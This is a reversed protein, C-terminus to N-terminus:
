LKKCHTSVMQSELGLAVIPLVLRHCEEFMASFNNRFGSRSHELM